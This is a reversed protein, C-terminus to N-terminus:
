LPSGHLSIGTVSFVGEEHLNQEEVTVRCKYEGSSSTYLVVYTEDEMEHDNQVWQYQSVAHFDDLAKYVLVDVGDRAFGAAWLSFQAGIRSSKM